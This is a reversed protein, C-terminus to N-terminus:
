RLVAALTVVTALPNRLDHAVIGLMEDRAQTAQRLASIDLAIGMLRTPQDRENRSVIKGRALVWIWDGENASIRCECEFHSRAGDLYGKLAKEVAPWDDPHFSSRGASGRLGAWRSDFTIDRTRPNWEWAGLEAGEFASELYELERLTVDARTIRKIEADGAMTPM